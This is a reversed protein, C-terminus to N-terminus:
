SSGERGVSAPSVRRSERPTATASRRRGDVRLRRDRNASRYSREVMPGRQRRASHRDCMSRAEASAAAVSGAPVRMHRRHRSAMTAGRAGRPRQRRRQAIRSGAAGGARTPAVTPRPQRAKRSCDSGYGSPSRLEGGHLGGRGRTTDGADQWVSHVSEPRRAALAAAGRAAMASPERARREGAATSSPRRPPRSCGSRWRCARAGHM